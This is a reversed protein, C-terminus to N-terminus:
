WFLTKRKKQAEQTEGPSSFLCVRNGVRDKVRAINEFPTLFIITNLDLTTDHRHWWASFPVVPLLNSLLHTPAKFCYHSQFVFSVVCASHIGDEGCAENKGGWMKGSVEIRSRVSSAWNEYFFFLLSSDIFTFMKIVEQWKKFAFSGFIADAEFCACVTQTKPERKEWNLIQRM